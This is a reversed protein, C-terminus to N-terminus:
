GGSFRGAMTRLMRLMKWRALRVSCSTRVSCPMTDASMAVPPAQRRPSPPSRHAPDENEVGADASQGHEIGDTCNERIGRVDVDGVVVAKGIALPVLVVQDRPDDRKEVLEDGGPRRVEADDGAVRGRGENQRM